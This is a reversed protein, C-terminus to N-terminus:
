DIEVMNAGFEAIEPHKELIDAEIKKVVESVRKTEPDYEDDSIQKFIDNLIHQFRIEDFLFVNLAHNAIDDFKEGTLKSYTELLRINRKTLKIQKTVRTNWIMDTYNFDKSKKM